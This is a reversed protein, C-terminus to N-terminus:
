VCNMLLYSLDLVYVIVTMWDLLLPQMEVSFMMFNYLSLAVIVIVRVSCLSPNICTETTCIVRCAIIPSPRRSLGSSRGRSFSASDRLVRIQGKGKSKMEPQVEARNRKTENRKTVYRMDGRRPLKQVLVDIKM